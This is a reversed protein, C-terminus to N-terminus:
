DSSWSIKTIWMTTSNNADSLYIYRAPRSLQYENSGANSPYRQRELINEMSAFDIISRETPRVSESLMISIRTAVVPLVICLVMIRAGPIQLALDDDPRRTLHYEGHQTEFVTGHFFLGSNTFYPHDSILLKPSLGEWDESGSAAQINMSQAGSAVGGSSTTM